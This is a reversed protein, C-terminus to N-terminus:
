ATRGASGGPGTYATCTHWNSPPTRARSRGATPSDRPSVSTKRACGTSGATDEPEPCSRFTSRCRCRTCPSHKNRRDEVRSALHAVDWGLLAYFRFFDRLLSPVFSRHRWVLVACRSTTCTTYYLRNCRYVNLQVFNKTVIVRLDDYFIKIRANFRCTRTVTFICREHQNKSKHHVNSERFLCM